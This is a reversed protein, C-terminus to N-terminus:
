ARNKSSIYFLTQYKLHQKNIFSSFGPGLYHKKLDRLIQKTCKYEFLKKKNMEVQFHRQTLTSVDDRKLTKLLKKSNKVM